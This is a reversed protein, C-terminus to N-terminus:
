EVLLGLFFFQKKQEKKRMNVKKKDKFIERVIVTKIKSKQNIIKMLIIHTNAPTQKKRRTNTQKKDNM